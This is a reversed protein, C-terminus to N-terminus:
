PTEDKYKTQSAAHKAQQGKRGEMQAILQKHENCSKEKFWSKPDQDNKVFRANSGGFETEKKETDFAPNPKHIAPEYKASYAAILAAEFEASYNFQIM